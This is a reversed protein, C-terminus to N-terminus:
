KYVPTSSSGLLWREAAPWRRGVQRAVWYYFGTVAAIGVANLLERWSFGFTPLTADLWAVAAAVATFKVVAWGLLAGIAIPFWTRIYATPDIKPYLPDSM